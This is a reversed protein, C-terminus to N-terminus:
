SRTTEPERNAHNHSCHNGALMRFAEDATRRPDELLEAEDELELIRDLIERRDGEILAEAERLFAHADADSVWRPDQRLTERLLALTARAAPGASNIKVSRTM